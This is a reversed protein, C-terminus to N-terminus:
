WDDDWRTHVAVNACDACDPTTALELLMALAKDNEGSLAYLGALDYRVILDGPNAALSAAYQAKAGAYDKKKHLALAALFLQKAEKEKAADVKATALPTVFDAVKPLKAILSPKAPPPPPPPAPEGLKPDSPPVTPSMDAKPATAVPEPSKPTEAVPRQA